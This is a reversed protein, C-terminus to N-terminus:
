VSTPCLYFFFYLRFFRHSSLNCSGWTRTEGEIDMIINDTILTQVCIACYDSTNNILYSRIKPSCRNNGCLKTAIVFTHKCTDTHTHTQVYKTEIILHSYWCRSSDLATHIEYVKACAKNLENGIVACKISALSFCM